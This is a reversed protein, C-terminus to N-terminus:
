NDKSKKLYHICVFHQHVMQWRQLTDQIDEKSINQEIMEEIVQKKGSKRQEEGRKAEIM